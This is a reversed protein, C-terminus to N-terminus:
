VHGGSAGRETVLDHGCDLRVVWVERAREEYGIQEPGAELIERWGQCEDCWDVPPPADATPETMPHVPCDPAQEWEPPHANGGEVYYNGPDVMTCTCEDSAAM